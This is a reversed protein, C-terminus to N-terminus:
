CDSGPDGTYGLQRCVVMADEDGWGDDCVTGWQNNHCIEVRGEFETTGSILRVAGEICVGPFSPCYM